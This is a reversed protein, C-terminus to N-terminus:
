FNLLLLKMLKINGIKNIPLNINRNYLLVQKTKDANISIKNSKQWWNLCKLESNILEASDMVNNGPICTSLTSDDAYLIYKFQSSCITINIFILFRPSGFYIKASCWVGVRPSSDM